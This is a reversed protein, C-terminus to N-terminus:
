VTALTVVVTVRGEPAVVVSVIVDPSRMPSVMVGGGAPVVPPTVTVVGPPAVTVFGFATRCFVIVVPTVVAILLPVKGALEVAGVGDGTDVPSNLPEAVYVLM